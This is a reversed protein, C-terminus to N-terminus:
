SEYSFLLQISDAGARSLACTYLTLGSHLLQPSTRCTTSYTFCRQACPKGLIQSVGTNSHCFRDYRVPKSLEPFFGECLQFIRTRGGEQSPAPSLALDKDAPACGQEPRVKM